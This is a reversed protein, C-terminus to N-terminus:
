WVKSYDAIDEESLGELSEKKFKLFEEETCNKIKRELATWTRYSLKDSPLRKLRVLKSLLNTIDRVDSESTKFLMRYLIKDTKTFKVKRKKKKSQEEKEKKYKIKIFDLKM